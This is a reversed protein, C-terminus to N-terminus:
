EFREDRGRQTRTEFAHEGEVEKALRQRLASLGPTLEAPVIQGVQGLLTANREIITARSGSWSSPSFQDALRALVADKDKAHILLQQAQTSWRPGDEATESPECFPVFSAALLFREAPRKECWQLVKNAPIVDTPSVGHHKDAQLLRAAAGDDVAVDFWADLVSVPHIELLARMLDTHEFAYVRDALLDSVLQRAFQQAASEGDPSPLMRRILDRLEYDSDETFQSRDLTLRSLLHRAADVLAPQQQECDREPSWVRASLISLAVHTGLQDNSIAILFDRLAVPDLSKSAHGISKLQVTSITGAAWAAQLRNLGQDDLSMGLQLEVLIESLSTDQWALDLLKTALARDGAALESLFGILVRPDREAKPRTKFGMLLRQWLHDADASSQALGQGLAYAAVGGRYLDDNLQDILAAENALAAGLEKAAEARRQYSGGADPSPSDSDPEMNWGTARLVASVQQELGAPRLASELRVLRAHVDGEAKNQDYRLIRRCAAWGELWFGDAAVRRALADVQEHMGARTWLGRLHSGLASRIADRHDVLRRECLQMVTAFWARIEDTNRARYGYDRSRAGFEDTISYHFNATALLQNIAAYGMSHSTGDAADLLSEALAVRQALTAHTGSSMIQFLSVWHSRAPNQQPTASPAVAVQYLMAACREFMVPEYALSRIVQMFQRWVGPSNARELTKLTATQDIAAINIFMHHGDENLSLLDGLPGGPALWRAAVKMAQPHTGIMSLRRSFSRLLRPSGGLGQPGDIWENPIEDLAWGALRNAIAHPLIARWPGRRQLLDRSDLQSCASLLQRPTQEVLRGLIELESADSEPDADFSYVLSLFKAAQLLEKDIAHRQWFLRQFLEDDTLSKIEGFRRVVDALVIAIRANGGAVVAIRRADIGSLEPFRRRLLTNILEESAPELGLVETGEPQDERVDYEITLLSLVSGSTACLEALQRHLASSCNDVILVARQASAILDTAVAVPQPTPGDNMNAYLVVAPDLSKATVEREFLAQAFRTKGVGSLGVLRVAKGPRALVECAWELAAATSLEESGQRARLAEEAIFSGAQEPAGSWPGWARWGAIARGARERAWVLVGPFANVWTALRRRDYFDLHLDEGGVLDGLAERMAKRRDSLGTHSVTGSSSVIVYAGQVAALDAIVPRLTDGPRMEDRVAKAAMDPKKVQFGAVRRPVFGEAWAVGAPLAVHVDVGGDKTTQSGGWTVAVTSQSARRVEAECLRAVLERLDADNLALIDEPSIELM